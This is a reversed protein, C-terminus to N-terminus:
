NTKDEKLLDPIKYGDNFININSKEVLSKNPFKDELALGVAM